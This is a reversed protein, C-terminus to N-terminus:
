LSVSHLATFFSTGTPFEDIPIKRLLAGFPVARDFDVRVEADGFRRELEAKTVPYDVDNLLKAVNHSINGYPYIGMDRIKIDQPM